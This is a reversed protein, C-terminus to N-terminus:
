PEMGRAALCQRLDSLGRYVLNEAKKTTWRLRRAAEPVTCGELYLTVALRRPRVLGRLCDQIGRGLERGASVREPGPGKSRAAEMAGEDRPLDERRRTRRRIEDVTVGHAAKALYMSSFERNGESRRMRELLQVLAEQVIDEAQGALWPPCARSVAATLRRRLSEV